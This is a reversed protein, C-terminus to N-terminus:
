AYCMSSKITIRNRKNKVWAAVVMFFIVWCIGSYRNLRKAELVLTPTNVFASVNVTKGSYACRAAGGPQPDLLYVKKKKKKKKKKRFVCM